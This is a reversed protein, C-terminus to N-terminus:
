AKLRIRAPADALFYLPGHRLLDVINEITQDPAPDIAKDIPAESRVEFTIRGCHCAGAYTM